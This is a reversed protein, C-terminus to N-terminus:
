SHDNAFVGGVVMTGERRRNDAHDRPNDDKSGCTNGSSKRDDLIPPSIAWAGVTAPHGTILTDSRRRRRNRWM